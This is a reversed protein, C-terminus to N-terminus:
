LLKKLEKTKLNKRIIYNNIRKKWKKIILITKSRKDLCAQCSLM